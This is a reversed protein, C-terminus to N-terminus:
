DAWRLIEGVAVRDTRFTNIESTLDPYGISIGLVLRNTEPIDLFAKTEVSYDTAFAQPVTGIGRARAALMISQAFLGLDFISWQTLSADQFLYIVHPAGYFRFNAKKAKKLVEPDNMDFGSAEARMRYLADIRSEQPVPWSLPEPIDPRPTEGKELLSVLLMSLEEKKKGSVIVAEWPQSNKYSPSWRATDIIETLIDKPVPEDKFKRISMRTKICEIVDM